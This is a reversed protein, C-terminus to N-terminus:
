EKEKAEKSGANFAAITTMLYRRRLDKLEELWYANLKKEAQLKGLFFAIVITAIWTLTIM